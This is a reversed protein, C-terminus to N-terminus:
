VMVVISYPSTLCEGLLQPQSALLPGSPRAVHPVVALWMLRASGALATWLRAALRSCVRVNLEGQCHVWCIFPTGQWHKRERRDCSGFLCPNVRGLLGCPCVMLLCAPSPGILLVFVCTAALSSRGVSSCWLCLGCTFRCSSFRAITCALCGCNNFAPGDLAYRRGAGKSDTGV